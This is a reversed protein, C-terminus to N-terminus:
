NRLQEIDVKLEMLQEIMEYHKTVHLKFLAEHYNVMKVYEEKLMVSILQIQDKNM